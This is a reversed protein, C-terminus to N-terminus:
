LPKTFAGEPCDIEVVRTITLTVQVPTAAGIRAAELCLLAAIIVVLLGVQKKM